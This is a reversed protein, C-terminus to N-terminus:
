GPEGFRLTVVAGGRPANALMLQGGFTMAQARAITLGIGTGGTARSRSTEGRVFPEFMEDIRDPPFGPGDDRVVIEVQGDQAHCHVRAAGAYKIANDIVNTLCRTLADPKTRISVRCNEVLTVAGGLENADEVLSAVLSEIDVESWPERSESSRALDLGDRVLAQTAALDAVLRERLVPDTVHELRLRLRTLPTQLDHAIAALIQTRERFGDRVRQQMLNFTALASRVETPGTLPIPEPDISLSFRRAAASLRRLPVTTLRAAVVALTASAVLILLLYVPDVMASPPIHLAPLDITLIHSRGARDVFRVQWCDVHPSRDVGAARPKDLFRPFCLGAIQGARAQAGPGLRSALMGSLRPDIPAPGLEPLYPRVGFIQRREILAATHQPDRALRSAMDETSAVVRELQLRRLEHTRVREAVFLSAISAGAMGLTLLLTIRGALSAIWDRARAIM